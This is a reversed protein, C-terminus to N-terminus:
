RVRELSLALAEANRMQEETVFVIQGFPNYARVYKTVKVKQESSVEKVEITRIGVRNGLAIADKLITENFTQSLSM